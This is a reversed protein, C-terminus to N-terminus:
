VKEKTGLKPAFRKCMSEYRHTLCHPRYPCNGYSSLMEEETWNECEYCYQGLGFSMLVENRIEALYKEIREQRGHQTFWKAKFKDRAENWDGEGTDGSLFWERDHFLEALDKVLNDLEKDKFDGIHDHIECYFYNLSGGSM